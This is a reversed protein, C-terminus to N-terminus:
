VPRHGPGISPSDAGHDAATRWTNLTDWAVMAVFLSMWPYIPAFTSVAIVPFSTVHVLANLLLYAFTGGLAAVAAAFPFTCTRARLLQVLRLLFLVLAVILLTTMAARMAEGARQLADLKIRDLWEQVPKELNPGAAKPSLQDRTMDRFLQLDNEDGLSPLPRAGFSEYTAVFDLFIVLTRVLDANYDSRWEPFFGSRRPRAPLVGADCAANIEDALKRYFAMARAADPAEGAATACDRLAWVFWGSGIQLSEAPLKTAYTSAGAWGLGYDGELHPRLKAATPSVRYIAERAERTVPVFPLDPGVRVRTMAGYADQLPRARMEVTGFWGYHRHNLTSVVLLPAATGSVALGLTAAIRWWAAPGAPRAAVVWGGLLVAVSPAIWISEERTMWFCGLAVGLLVAWPALRRLPEHRRCYLAVVSGFVMLGLPTYVAQRLIRGNTPAEWSMPNLLLLAYVGLCFALPRFAPRLARACVACAATYLLQQAVSLPLGIWFVAAIFIPYFPGKALTMQDYAGLWEGRAISRALKLYLADDHMAFGIAYVPQGLTLWLKAVTLAAALALLLRSTLPLRQSM